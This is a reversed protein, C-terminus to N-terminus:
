DVRVRNAHWIIVILLIRTVCAPLLFNSETVRNIPMSSALAQPEAPTTGAAAAEAAPFLLAVVLWLAGTIASVVAGCAL